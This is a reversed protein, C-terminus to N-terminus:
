GRGSVWGNLASEQHFRSAINQLNELREATRELNWNAGKAFSSMHVDTMTKSVGRVNRSIVYANELVNEDGPAGDSHQVTIAYCKDKKGKLSDDYPMTLMM